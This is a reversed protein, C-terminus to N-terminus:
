EVPRCVALLEADEATVGIGVNDQQLFGLRLNQKVKNSTADAKVLRITQRSEVRFWRNGLTLAHLSEM